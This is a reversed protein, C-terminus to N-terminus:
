KDNKKILSEIFTNYEKSFRERTHHERAYVWAGLVKKRIEDETASAIKRVMERIEEVTNKKLLIGFDEVNVGSNESIIPILGAHMATIVAGSQGESSSPYVIGISNNIINKFESSGPNIFGVYNINITDYLEKKYEEAFDKENSTKGIVTLNFEPMKTFAELVLDLGKHVAGVGGFWIFNNRASTLNKNEPSPYAHTTSLSIYHIKKDQLGYTSETIKNGLMSIFDAYAISNTKVVQRRPSLRVGRRKELNLLRETESKNQFEAESGTLHLIKICDKNLFPDLRELNSHIDLFFDYKKKPIFSNNEWDIVDVAYGRKLFLRAIERCEWRNTHSDLVHKKTIFPLVTYSLLVNGRVGISPRLHVVGESLKLRITNLIKYNRLNQLLGVNIHM